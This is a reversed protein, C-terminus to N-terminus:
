GQWGLRILADTVRKVAAPAGSVGLGLGAHVAGDILQKGIHAAIVPTSFSTGSWIAFGDSYDDFDLSQRKGPLPSGQPLTNAPHAPMSIEPDRRGNIDIPFTSVMAAGMAWAKIWRGGDSFLAKSGNPNLAGVSIVPVPGTATGAFAAPYFRRSTAYNGAAAVVVVGMGLLTEILQGLGTTYARDATTESFYGLSLSIVDVMGTLGAGAGAVRAAILTLAAVLHGEYVVGDSHMIRISLVQADPVIQRVLGAIFTGHGTHTDLEGVLPNATVPKDWPGRILQGPQDGAAAAQQGLQEIEGQIVEDVAVFPDAGATRYGGPATAQKIVDLWPHVRVGSDLVAIVPRRGHSAVFDALKTRAPAALCLGVPARADLGRSLYSGVTVPSASVGGGDSAPSGLVGGGDSAPSGTITIASGLLLHELSITGVDERTLDIFQGSEATAARLAQLAAWADLVVPRAAGEHDAAPRLVATHPLGRLKAALGAPVHKGLQIGGDPRHLSMGVGALIRRVGEKALVADSILLTKARYVTSRPPPFGSVAAADAPSLV